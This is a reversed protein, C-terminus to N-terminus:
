QLIRRGFAHSKGPSRAPWGIVLSATPCAQAFACVVEGAQGFRYRRVAQPVGEGGMEQLGACVHAGKLQQETIAAERGGGLVQADGGILDAGGRDRRARTADPAWRAAARWAPTNRLERHGTRPRVHRVYETAVALGITGLVCRQRSSLAAGHRRDFQAPGSREIPVDFPAILAAVPANGEVAAAVPMTGAALRQCARLPQLIPAGLQEVCLM